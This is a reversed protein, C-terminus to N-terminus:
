LSCVILNSLMHSKSSKHSKVRLYLMPRQCDKKMQSNQILQSLMYWIHGAKSRAEKKRPSEVKLHSIGRTRNEFFNHLTVGYKRYLYNVILYILLM